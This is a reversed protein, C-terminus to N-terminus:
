RGVTLFYTMFRVGNVCEFLWVEAWKLPNWIHRYWERWIRHYYSRSYVGVFPIRKKFWLAIVSPVRVEPMEGRLREYLKVLERAKLDRWDVIGQKTRGALDLLAEEAKGRPRSRLWVEELQFFLKAIGRIRAVAALIRGWRFSFVNEKPFGPRRDLRSRL